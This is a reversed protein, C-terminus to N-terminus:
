IDSLLPKLNVISVSHSSPSGHRHHSSSHHYPHGPSLHHSHITPAPLHTTTSSSGGPIIDDREYSNERSTELSRQPTHMQHAASRFQSASSNAHQGM